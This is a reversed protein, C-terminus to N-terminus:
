NRSVVCDGGVTRLNTCLTSADNSSAFPGVRVRYYTGRDAVTAPQISASYQGLVQPFKKQLAAYATRADAESRQSTVQVVFGSGAAATPAPKAAAPAPAKPTVAAVQQQPAAPRPTPQPAATVTPRPTPAPKAAKPAPTAAADGGDSMIGNSFETPQQSVPPRGTRALDAIPDNAPPRSEAVPAPAPSSPLANPASSTTPLIAVTKVRRPEDASQVAGGPVITRAGDAHPTAATAAPLEVPEEERSVVKSQQKPGDDVRDYVAKNPQPVSAGSDDPSSKVPETDARILPADGGLGHGGLMKYGVAGAGGIIAVALVAGVVVLGGRSKTPQPDAAYYLPHGDEDYGYPEEPNPAYARPDYPQEDQEAAYRQQDAYFQQEDYHHGSRLEYDDYPQEYGAGSGGADRKVAHNQM